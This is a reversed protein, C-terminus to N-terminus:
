KNLSSVSRNLYESCLVKLLLVLFQGRLLSADTASFHIGNLLAWRSFRTTARSSVFNGGNISASPKNDHQCIVLARGHDRVQALQTRNAGESGIEKGDM